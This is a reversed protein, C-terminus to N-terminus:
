ESEKEGERVQRGMVARIQDRRRWPEGIIVALGAAMILVSGIYAIAQWSM